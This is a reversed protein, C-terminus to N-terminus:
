TALPSNGASCSGFFNLFYFACITPIKKTPAAIKINQRSVQAMNSALITSHGQQQAKNAAALLLMSMKDRFIFAYHGDDGSM